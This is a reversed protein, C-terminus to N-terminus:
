AGAIVLQGRIRSIAVHRGNVEVSWAGVVLRVREEGNGAKEYVGIFCYRWELIQNAYNIAGLTKRADTGFVTAKTSPEM